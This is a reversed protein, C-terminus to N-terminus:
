QATATVRYETHGVRVASDGSELRDAGDLAARHLADKGLHWWGEAQERLHSVLEDRPGTTSLEHTSEM